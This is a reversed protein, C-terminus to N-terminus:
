IEVTKLYSKTNELEEGPNGMYCVVCGNHDGAEDGKIYIAKAM